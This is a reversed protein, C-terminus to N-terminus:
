SHLFGNKSHIGDAFGRVGHRAGYQGTLISARSIPCISTTVFNNEFIVSKKSLADLVPTKIIKNGLYGLTDYRLDDAIFLIINPQKSHRFNKYSKYLLGSGATAAAAAGMGAVFKRRNIKM